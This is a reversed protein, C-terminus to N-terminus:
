ADRPHELPEAQHPQIGRAGDGGLRHRLGALVGGLIARAQGGNLGFVILRLTLSGATRAKWWFPVHRLRMMVIQNRAYTFVRQPPQRTLRLNLLPIAVLGGGLRHPMAEHTAMICRFGHARARFGWEIDIGDIFFDERFPGIERLAELDVLSGSSILFAIERLGSHAAAEAAESRPTVFPFKFDPGPEAPVPRPGVAAIRGFRRAAEDFADALRLAAGSSPSSDQDFLMLLDCGAAHAADSAENYARGLGVNAGSGLVQMRTPQAAARCDEILGPAPASNLFLFVTQLEGGIARLLRLLLERDPRYLVVVGAIRHSM